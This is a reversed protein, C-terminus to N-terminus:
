NSQNTQSLRATGADTHSFGYNTSYDSSILAVNTSNISLLKTMKYGVLENSQNAIVEARSRSSTDDTIVLFVLPQSLPNHSISLLHTLLYSYQNSYTRTIFCVQNNSPINASIQIPNRLLAAAKIESIKVPIVKIEGATLIRLVLVLLISATFFFLKDYGITRSVKSIQTFIKM